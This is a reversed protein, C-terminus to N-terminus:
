SADVDPGPSDVSYSLVVHGSDHAQTGRLRLVPAHQTGSFLPIGSGFVIPNLKVIVEDVLGAEFLGTALQCGGCIWIDDGEAEKIQRVFAAADDSVLTVAPDPSVSLTRSFLFQDLTPYPSGPGQALGVEYTKRGMLVAGFRRNDARTAGPERLPAPFTEPYAAMLDAIYAENWPFEAFSGNERAIFGDLTAAVYYVVSRMSNSDAPPVRSPENQMELEPM